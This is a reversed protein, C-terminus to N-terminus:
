ALTVLVGGTDISDGPKVAISGVKGAGKAFVETKMKMAELTAIKDGVKVMQGITVDISQVTGALPAVEAGAAAPHAAAPSPSPAAVVAAIPASTAPHPEFHHAGGNEEEVVVSYSRGDVSIKFSRLM